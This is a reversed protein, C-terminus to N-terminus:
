TNFTQCNPCKVGTMKANFNVNCDTCQIFYENSLFEDRWTLIENKSITAGERDRVYKIFAQCHVTLANELLTFYGNTYPENNFPECDQHFCQQEESFELRWRNQLNM